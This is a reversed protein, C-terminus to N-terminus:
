TTIVSFNSMMRPKMHETKTGGGGRGLGWTYFICVIETVSLLRCIGVSCIYRNFPIYIFKGSDNIHFTMKVRGMSSNRTGKSSIPFLLGHLPLPNGIESDSHDKAM